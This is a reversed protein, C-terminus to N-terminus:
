KETNDGSKLYDQVLKEIIDKQQKAFRYPTKNVPNGEAVLQIKHDHGKRKPPLGTPKRFFIM